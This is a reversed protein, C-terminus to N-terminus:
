EKRIITGDPLVCTTGRVLEGNVYTDQPKCHHREIQEKFVWDHHRDIEANSGLTYGLITFLVGIALTGFLVMTGSITDKDQM